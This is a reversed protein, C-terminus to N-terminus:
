YPVLRHTTTIHSRTQYLVLVDWKNCAWFQGLWLVDWVDEFWLTGPPFGHSCLSFLRTWMFAEPSLQSSSVWRDMTGSVSRIVSVDIHFFSHTHVTHFSKLHTHPPNLLPIVCYWLTGRLVHRFNWWIVPLGLKYSMTARCLPAAPLPHSSELPGAISPPGQPPVDNRILIKDVWYGALTTGTGCM